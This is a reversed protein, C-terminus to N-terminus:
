GGDTGRVFYYGDTCKTLVHVVATKNALDIGVNLRLDPGVWVHDGYVAVASETTRVDRRTPVFVVDLWHVRRAFGDILKLWDAKAVVLLVVSRLRNGKTQDRLFHGFHM